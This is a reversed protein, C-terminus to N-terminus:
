QGLEMRYNEVFRADDVGQGNYPDRSLGTIVLKNLDLDNAYGNAVETEQEGAFVEGVRDTEKEIAAYLYDTADEMMGLYFWILDQKTQIDKKLIEPTVRGESEETEDRTENNKDNRERGCGAAGMVLCLATLIGTMKIIKRKWETRM